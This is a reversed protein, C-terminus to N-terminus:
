ALRELEEATKASKKADVADDTVPTVAISQNGSVDGSEIMKDDKAEGKVEEVVVAVPEDAEIMELNLGLAQLEGVLVKFGEPVGPVGIPKGHIIHKYAEARGIVDDSKITLMEQLIAGAGYAELAWVEMEGFRQGGFQAKGGLPQQTVLTYSGTARAHIKEDALHNLKLMYRPGVTVKNAFPKGTRGDYLTVKNELEGIGKEKLMAQLKVENIKSFLPVAFKVGLAQAKVGLHTELLQGMNMRKTIGLPSLIIDVPTGDATYPMDEAPLIKSIVGKDGHRGALKDGITIKRTKAVWVKVVKLVGPSLKDGADKSLVQVDIVIGDEGNPVKLSNDRVDRAYDGFIARLLREEATLETEGKPAITGVLIDTARVESGIWVIGKPDLNRLVHESVGPIDNTISEDGLRTERIEQTYETIHVSTLIDDKVLRESIVIGDEYNFGEWLMYAVTINKGLALEGDEMCSGDVLLDGKAVEQGTRVRNVQTFSTNQNTGVFKELKYEVKSSKGSGVKNKLILREADAFEVTADFPAYIARGSNRAVVVEFGTGVVPSEPNILPIAQRQMNAAMLARQSEDSAAFPVLAFGTGAIQISSADIFQIDKNAAINFNGKYRLPLLTATINNFEDRQASASTIPYGFEEGASMYVITDTVFPCVKLVDVAQMIKKAEAKTKIYADAEIITENGSKVTERSIKNIMSEAIEDASMTEKLAKFDFSSTVRRYPTELFGYENIKAYVALHNVIGINQGEPTEIPCLRGYQSYHTDRVSFTAREKTLGGPGGCTLRRKNGLESLINEQDMYRSVESSGFFENLSAAIPRTSVLTAPVLLEDSAHISMRDKINKEIRRVGIRIFDAVLEGVSKVRRNAMSDIDDPLADGNNVQILRKIVAVVDSPFLVFNEPTMSLDLGLKRNLQYRGTKGLYVRRPNFFINEIFIKANEYTASVDPRIKKYIDMVAEEQSNTTDKLLTSEIFKREPNSDVDAFLALIDANTSYGLVRLLETVPIKPRKPALKISIVDHKSVEFNFWAGRGPILKALYLPSSGNKEASEIFLVGESRIIQHVVARENGNIIFTGRDTMLPMDCIFLEQEKVEGTHKNILRSTIFFPADYSLGKSVAEVTTRNQEGLKSSLFELTWLKSTNDDVPSIEMFVELLAKDLFDAYSVVQSDILSEIPMDLHPMSIDIREVPKRETIEKSKKVSKGSVTTSTKAM